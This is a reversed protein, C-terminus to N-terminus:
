LRATPVLGEACCAQPGAVRVWTPLAECSQAAPLTPAERSVRRVPATASGRQQAGKRSNERRNRPPLEGIHSKILELQGPIREWEGLRVLGYWEDVLPELDEAMKFCKGANTNPNHPTQMQEKAIKAADNFAYPKAGTAFGGPQQRKSASPHDGGIRGEGDKSPPSDEPAWEM